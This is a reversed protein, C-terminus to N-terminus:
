LDRRMFIRAAVDLGAAVEVARLERLGPTLEDEAMARFGSRAYYPANWPVERFTSLTVAPAGWGHAWAVVEAVLAQGRGERGASPRVSLQELHGLGDVVLALAYGV